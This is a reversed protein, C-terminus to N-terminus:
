LGLLPGAPYGLQTAAELGILKSYCHMILQGLFVLMIVVVILMKTSITTLQALKCTTGHPSLSLLFPLSYSSSTAAAWRSEHGNRAAALVRWIIHTYRFLWYAVVM